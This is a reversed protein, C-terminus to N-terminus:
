RFRVQRPEDGDRIPRAKKNLARALSRQPKQIAHRHFITLALFVREDNSYAQKQEYKTRERLGAVHIALYDNLVYNYRMSYRQTGYTDTEAKLQGRNSLFDAKITSSNIIGGPSGLGFLASNAGRQVEVRETNYSDFPTNTIFYDRTLDAAALGRIRTVGGGQSDRQQEPVPNGGSAGSFNGGLGGVETNPTFILVDELNTSGTDRLFEQNIISISSGIDRLDSKLRTGALTSTSQYGVDGSSSVVFPSLVVLDETKPPVSPTASPAGQAFLGGTLILFSPALLWTKINTKM